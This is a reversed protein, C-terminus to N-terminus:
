QGYLTGQPAGARILELMASGFAVEDALDPAGSAAADAEFRAQAAAMTVEAESPSFPYQEAARHM